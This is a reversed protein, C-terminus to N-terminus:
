AVLIHLLRISPMWIADTAQGMGPGGCHIITKAMPQFYQDAIKLTDASGGVMFTLNGSAAGMTGGSVPADLFRLNKGECLGHLDRADDLNITSSDIVITGPRAQEFVPGCVVSRVEVESPLMTLVVDSGSIAEAHSNCAIVGDEELARTKDEILDYAKVRFGGRVLNLSMPAGMNGTGIVAITPM